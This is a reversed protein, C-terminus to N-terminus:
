KDSKIEFRHLVNFEQPDQIWLRKQSDVKFIPQNHVDVMRMPLERPWFYAIFQGKKDFVDVRMLYKEDLTKGSISEYNDQHGGHLVLVLDEYFAIGSVPVTTITMRGAAFDIFPMPEHDRKFSRVYKGDLDYVEINYKNLPAAYIHGDPGIEVTSYYTKADSSRLRIEHIVTGDRDNITIDPLGPKHFYTFIMRDDLCFLKVCPRTLRTRKRFVGKGDFESLFRNGLDYIFITDDGLAVRIPRSFEGPGDGKKGFQFLLEGELDFCLAKKDKYDLILLGQPHNIMSIPYNFVDEDFISPLQELRFSGAQGCGSVVLLFVIKVLIGISFKRKLM